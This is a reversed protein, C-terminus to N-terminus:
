HNLKWGRMSGLNLRGGLTIGGLALAGLQPARKDKKFIYVRKHDDLM